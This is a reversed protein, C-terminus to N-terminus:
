SPRLIKPAPGSTALWGSEMPFRVSRNGHSCMRLAASSADRVRHSIPDLRGGSPGRAANFDAGGMRDRSIPSPDTTGRAPFGRWRAGSRDAGILTDM